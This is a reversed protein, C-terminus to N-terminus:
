IAPKKLASYYMVFAADERIALIMLADGSLPKGQLPFSNVRSNENGRWFSSLVLLTLLTLHKM